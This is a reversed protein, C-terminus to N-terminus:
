SLITVTYGKERMIEIGESFDKGYSNRVQVTQSTQPEGLLQALVKFSSPTMYYVNLILSAGGEPVFGDPLYLVRPYFHQASYLIRINDGSLILREVKFGADLNVYANYSVVVELTNYFYQGLAPTIGNVAKKVGMKGIVSSSIGPAEAAYLWDQKGFSVFGSLATSLTDGQLVVANGDNAFSAYVGSVVRLIGNTANCLFCGFATAYYWSYLQVTPTFSSVGSIVAHLISKETYGGNSSGIRVTCSAINAINKIRRVHRGVGRVTSLYITSAASTIEVFDGGDVSEELTVNVSTDVRVVNTLALSFGPGNEVNEYIVVIEGEPARYMAGVCMDRKVAEFASDPFNWGAFTCFEHQPPVPPTVPEGFPVWSDQLVTGDDDLFVVHCFEAGAIFDLKDIEEPYASLPANKELPVPIKGNIAARIAHKASNLALLKEAIQGM